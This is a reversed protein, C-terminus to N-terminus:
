DKHGHQEYASMPKSYDVRWRREGAPLKGLAKAMAKVHCAVSGCCSGIFNIGMQKAQLAYDGMEARTMQLPDLGTPFEALTTFDVAAASTRYATPQAAV